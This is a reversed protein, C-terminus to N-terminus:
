QKKQSKDSTKGRGKGKGHFKDRGSGRNSSGRGRGKGKSQGSIANMKSFLDMLQQQYNVSSGKAPSFDKRQKKMAPTLIKSPGAGSSSTQSFPRKSGSSGSGSPHHSPFGCHGLLIRLPKAQHSAQSKLEEVVKKDFVGPSLPNTWKLRTVLPNGSQFFRLADYRLQMKAKLWTELSSHAQKLSGKLIGKIPESAPYEASNTVIELYLSTSYNHLVSM